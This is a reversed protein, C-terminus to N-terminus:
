CSGFAGLMIALDAAEVSGSGNLDGPGATGWAGLLIALDMADTTGDANLDSPCAVGEFEYCGRDLYSVPGTGNNASAADDVFREAGDLDTLFLDAPLWDSNANDIANSTAKLRFDDDANGRLLDPGLPDVFAPDNGNNGPGGYVGSWGQVTSAAVDLVGLATLQRQEVAAALGSNKWVISNRLTLEAAPAVYVGGCGAATSVNDAVTTNVMLGVATAIFSV